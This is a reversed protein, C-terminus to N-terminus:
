SRTVLACLGMTMVSWFCSSEGATANLRDIEAQHAKIFTFRWPTMRKSSYKIYIGIKDDVIYSSNSESLYPKIVVPRQGRHIIRAFVLGHFFEFEKIM